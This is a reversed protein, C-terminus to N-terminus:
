TVMGLYGLYSFLVLGKHPGRRKPFRGGDESLIVVKVGTPSQTGKASHPKNWSVLARGERFDGGTFILLCRLRGTRGLARKASNPLQRTYGEIGKTALLSILERSTQRGKQSGGLASHM